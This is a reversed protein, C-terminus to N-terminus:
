VMMSNHSQENKHKTDKQDRQLQDVTQQFLTHADENDKKYQEKQKELFEFKGQWLAREKDFETQLDAHLRDAEYYKIKWQEADERAGSEGKSMAEQLEENEQSLQMNQQELNVILEKQSRELNEYKERSVAAEREHQSHTQQITKELDKFAKRKQEYKKDINEKEQQVRAIRETM